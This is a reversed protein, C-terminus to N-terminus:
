GVGRSPQWPSFYFTGKRRRSGPPALNYDAFTNDLGLPKITLSKGCSGASFSSSLGLAPVRACPCLRAGAPRM